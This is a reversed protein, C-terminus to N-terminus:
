IINKVSSDIPYCIEEPRKEVGRLVIELAGVINRTKKLVKQCRELM